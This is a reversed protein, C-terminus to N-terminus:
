AGDPWGNVASSEEDAIHHRLRVLLRAVLGAATTSDGGFTTCNRGARTRFAVVVTGHRRYLEEILEVATYSALPNTTKKVAGAKRNAKKSM